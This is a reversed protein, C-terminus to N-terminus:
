AVVKHTVVKYRQGARRYTVAAIVAPAVIWITALAASYSGVISTVNVRARDTLRLLLATLIGLVMIGLVGVSLYAELWSPLIQDKTVVNQYLLSNYISVGNSSRWGDPLGPLPNVVSYVLSQLTFSTDAKLVPASQLPSQGYNLIVQVLSSVFSGTDATLGIREAYLAQRVSGLYFFAAGLLGVGVVVPAARVKGTSVRVMALLFAAAPFLIASRNLGFSGLALFATIAVAAMTLAIRFPSSRDGKLAFLALGLPLLPRMVASVFGVVGDGSQLSEYDGALFGQLAEVNPFRLALGVSGVIVLLWRVSRASDAYAARLKSQRELPAEIARDRPLVACTGVVVAFFVNGIFLITVSDATTGLQRYVPVVQGVLQVLLPVLCGRLWEFATLLVLGNLALGRIKARAVVVAGVVLIAHVVIPLVYEPRDGAAAGVLSCAATLVAVVALLAGIADGVRRRDQDHFSL